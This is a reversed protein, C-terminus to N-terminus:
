RAALAAVRRASKVVPVDVMRGDVECAGGRANEFAAVIKRAKAVQDPAPTFVENISAIQAPHIAFKCTYGLAKASETAKRLGEADRIDLFPVDFAAVGATAAAQVIRSRAYLMQEWGLEAGLDAALDAGGFALAGVAPHAAIAEAASLGRATEILAIIRPQTGRDSLHRVAIEVESVSETKPLVICQPRAAAEHLALLDRLGGVTTVHNLRLAWIFGTPAAIPATFFALAARRADDKAPLGVGDELDLVAGDAGASVAKAFREPRDAPTFLLCRSFTLDVMATSVTLNYM